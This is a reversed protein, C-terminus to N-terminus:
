MEDEQCIKRVKKRKGDTARSVKRNQYWTKRRFTRGRSNEKQQCRESKVDREKSM